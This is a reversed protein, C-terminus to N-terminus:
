QATRTSLRGLPWTRFPRSLARGRAWRALLFPCFAVTGLTNPLEVRFVEPQSCPQTFAPPPDAPFTSGSHACKVDDAKIPGPDTHLSHAVKAM